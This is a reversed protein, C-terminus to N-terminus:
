RQAAKQVALPELCYMCHRDEPETHEYWWQADKLAWELDAQVPKRERFNGLWMDAHRENCFMRQFKPNFSM